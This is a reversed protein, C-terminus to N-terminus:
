INPPRRRPPPEFVSTLIVVGAGDFYSNVFLSILSFLKRFLLLVSAWSAHGRKM